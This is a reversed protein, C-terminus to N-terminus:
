DRFDKDFNINFPFTLNNTACDYYIEVTFLKDATVQPYDKYKVSVTLNYFGIRNIDSTTLYLKKEQVVLSALTMSPDADPLSWIILGCDTSTLTIDFFNSEVSTDFWSM